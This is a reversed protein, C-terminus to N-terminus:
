SLENLNRIKLGQYRSFDIKEFDEVILYKIIINEDLLEAKLGLKKLGNNKANYYHKEKELRPNPIKGM